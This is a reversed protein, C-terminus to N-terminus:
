KMFNFARTSGIMNFEYIQEACSGEVIKIKLIDCHLFQYNAESNALDSDIFICTADNSVKGTTTYKQFSGLTKFALVVEIETDCFYEGQIYFIISGDINEMKLFAGDTKKTYAIKYPEDFGNDVTEYSWQAQASVSCLVMLLLILQKM